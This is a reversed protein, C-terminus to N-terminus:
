WLTEVDSVQIKRDRSILPVGYCLATAAIIRDPLEPVQSRDVRRMAEVVQRDLPFEALVTVEADMANLLLELTGQRIRGRETLYVMEALTISSLGVQDGGAATSEM